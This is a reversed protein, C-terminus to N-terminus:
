NKSIGKIFGFELANKDNLNYEFDMKISLDTLRSNWSFSTEYGIEYDYNSYIVSLNSFLRQNYMHNWRATTTINGWNFHGSDNGGMKLVDRGAYSSIYIKNNENITYNAKGNFDYFYLADDKTPESSILDFLKDAYTRRGSLLVSGKGKVIPAEVTLRSSIISVGGRTSFQKNNGERMRVNMVSSVRSGYRVPFVGKYFDVNNIADNNFTSFLGLLHSPNYVVAEDLLILNQDPNGGRVSFGSSTEGTMQVGPLLKIVKLLDVEGFLVPVSEIQKMSLTETGMRVSTVNEDERRDTVVIADLENVDEKMEVSITQDEELVLNLTQMEFGIYSFSIMQNGAPISLSYYGYVNTITEISRDGVLRITVGILAEGTAEDTVYGSISIKEENLDKKKIIVHKGILQYVTRSSKAIVDLVEKVTPTLNSFPPIEQQLKLDSQDYSLNVGDVASLAILLSKVTQAELSKLEVKQVFVQALADHDKSSTGQAHVFATHWSCLLAFCMKLLFKKHRLFGRRIGCLMRTKKNKM